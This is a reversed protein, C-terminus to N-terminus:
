ISGATRTTLTARAGGALDASHKIDFGDQESRVRSVFSIRRTSHPAVTVARDLTITDYGNATAVSEVIAYQSTGDEHLFQLVRREDPYDDDATGVPLGSKKVKVTLGASTAAALKLDETFSPVYMSRQRGALYFLLNKFRAYEAAGRLSFLHTLVHFSRLTKETGQTYSRGRGDFELYLRQFEATMDESADPILDLLPLADLLDTYEAYGFPDREVVNARVTGSYMQGSVKTFKPNGELRSLRLPVIVAYQPIGASAEVTVTAAVANVANVTAITYTNRLPDFVMCGRGAVFGYAEVGPCPLVAVGAAYEARAPVQCHWAPVYVYGRGFVYGNLSTVVPARFSLFADLEMRQEARAYLTFEMSRRPHLRMAQRQSVGSESELVRTQWEWRETLGQQWDIPYYLVPADPTYDFDIDEAAM